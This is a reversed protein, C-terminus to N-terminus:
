TDTGSDWLRVFFQLIADALAIVRMAIIFCERRLDDDVTLGAMRFHDPKLTLRVVGGDDDLGDFLEVADIERTRDIEERM